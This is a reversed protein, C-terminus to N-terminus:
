IMYLRESMMSFNIDSFNSLGDKYTCFDKLNLIDEGNAYNFPQIATKKKTKIVNRSEEMEQVTKAIVYM